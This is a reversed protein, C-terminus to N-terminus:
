CISISVKQFSYNTHLKLEKSDSKPFNESFQTTACIQTQLTVKPATSGATLQAKASDTVTASRVAWVLICIVSFSGRGRTLPSDGGWVTLCGKCM